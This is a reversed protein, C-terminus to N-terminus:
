FIYNLYVGGYLRNKQNGNNKDSINGWPISYNINPKCILNKLLPVTIGTGLAADGGKGRFYQKNNFGAHGSFDLSMNLKRMVFPISHSLNLM